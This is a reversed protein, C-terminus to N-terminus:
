YYIGQIDDDVPSLPKIRRSSDPISRGPHQLYPQNRSANWANQYRLQPYDSDRHQSQQEFGQHHQEQPNLRPTQQKKGFPVAAAVVMPACQAATHPKRNRSKQVSQSVASSDIVSGNVLGLHKRTAALVGSSVNEAAEKLSANHEIYDLLAQLPNPYQSSDLRESYTILVQGLQEETREEKSRFEEIAQESLVSIPIEEKAKKEEKPSM